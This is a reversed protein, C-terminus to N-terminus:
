ETLSRELLAINQERMNGTQAWKEFYARAATTMAAYEDSDMDVCKQLIRQWENKDALPIDWGVGQKELGIWPTQDSIIVPCGASLSEAIVHGFNEGHTPFLFFHYEAFKAKAEEHPLSGLYNIKVNPPMAAILRNCEALYERGEVPGCIDFTVDDKIGSLMEIAGHVNKKPAFRSVFLFSVRGKQKDLKSDPLDDDSDPLDSAVQIPAAVHIRSRARSFRKAGIAFRAMVREIDQKEREASAHWLIRRYLGWLSMLWLYANKKTKKLSLAGPSFEGRTALVVAIPPLLRLWRLLLVNFTWRSFFGNLYVIEPKLDCIVRRTRALSLKNTYWVQSNGVPLWKNTPVDYRQKEKFDHDHTLVHFSYVESGLGAVLNAISRVPGGAKFGPLYAGIVVLVKKM